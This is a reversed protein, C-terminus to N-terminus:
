KQGNKSSNSVQGNKANTQKIAAFKSSLQDNKAMAMCVKKFSCM